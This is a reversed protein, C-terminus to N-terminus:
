PRLLWTGATMGNWQGDGGGAILIDGDDLLTASYDNVKPLGSSIEQFSESDPDFAEVTTVANQNAFAGFLLVRGDSIKIAISRPNPTSMSGVQALKGTRPDFVESVERDAGSETFLVRGDALLTSTKPDGLLPLPISASLPHSPDILDASDNIAWYNRDDDWYMGGAILVRGDDLLTGLAGYRTATMSPGASFEGSKPDFIETGSGGAMLVRGDPLLVLSKGPDVGAPPKIVTATGRAPDYIQILEGYALVRGDHLLLARGGFPEALSGNHRFKGTKPDYIEVSATLPQGCAMGCQQPTIPVSGGMILVRGDELRVATQGERALTMAPGPTVTAPAMPRPSPRPTPTPSSTPGATTSPRASAVALLSASPSPTATGSCGIVTPILLLISVVRALLETRVREEKIM